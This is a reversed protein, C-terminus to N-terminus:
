VGDILIRSTMNIYPKFQSPDTPSDPLCDVTLWVSSATSTAIRESHSDIVASDLTNKSWTGRIQTAIPNEIYSVMDWRVQAVWLYDLTPASFFGLPSGGSPQWVLAIVTKIRRWPAPFAATGTDQCNVEMNCTVHTRLLTEGVAFTGLENLNFALPFWPYSPSVSDQYSPLWRKIRAM